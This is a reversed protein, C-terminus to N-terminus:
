SRLLDKAGATGSRVLELQGNRFIGKVLGLAPVQDSVWVTGDRHSGRVASFSGAPVAVQEPTGRVDAQRLPRLANEPTAIPGQPRRTVSRIAKGSARDITIQTVSLPAGELSQQTVIQLVYSKADGRVISYTVFFPAPPASERTVSWTERGGAGSERILVPVEHALSSTWQYTAWSGVAPGGVRQALVPEAAALLSVVVLATVLVRSRRDTAKFRMM